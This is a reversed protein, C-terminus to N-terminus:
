SKKEIGSDQKEIIREEEGHQAALVVAVVLGIMMWPFAATCFDHFGGGIMGSCLRIVLIIACLVIGAAQMKGFKKKENMM